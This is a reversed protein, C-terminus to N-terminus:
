QIGEAGAYKDIDEGAQKLASLVQERTNDNGKNDPLYLLTSHLANVLAEHSNVADIIIKANTYGDEYYNEMRAIDRAQYTIVPTENDYEIVWKDKNM